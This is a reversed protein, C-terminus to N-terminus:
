VASTCTVYEAEMISFLHLAAEQQVLYIAAGGLLFAYGLTSKCEDRDASGDADGYGVLRLSGGHYCLALDSTGKLYRLIRKVAVWHNPGPNSRYRSVMGVAFCLDPRTCMMAHM